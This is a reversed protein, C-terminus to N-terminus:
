LSMQWGAALVLYSPAYRREGHKQFGRLCGVEAFVSHRARIPVRVGAYASLVFGHADGSDAGAGDYALLSSYGPALLLYPALVRPGPYEVKVRLSGALMASVPYFTTKPIVNLTLEPMFGVSFVPNLRYDVFPAAGLAPYARLESEMPAGAGSWEFWGIPMYRAAFGVEVRGSRDQARAAFPSLALGALLVLAYCEARRHRRIM